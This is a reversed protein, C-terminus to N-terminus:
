DNFYVDRETFIDILDKFSKRSNDCLNINCEDYLAELMEVPTQEPEQDEKMEEVFEKYVDTSKLLTNYSPTGTVKYKNHNPADESHSNLVEVKDAEWEDVILGKVELLTPTDDWIEHYRLHSMDPSDGKLMDLVLESEKSNSWLAEIASRLDWGSVSQRDRNLKLYKPKFDYSYKFSDDSMVYIGGVYIDGRKDLLVTGHPTDLTDGMDSQLYLCRNVLTEYDEQTVGKIEVVFDRNNTSASDEYIALTNCQFSENWELKPTWTVDGNYFTIELGERIVTVCSVTMGEGFKGVADENHRNTSVGLALSSFPITIDKSTITLVEEEYDFSCEAPSDLANTIFERIGDLHDWHGCYSESIMTNHKIM